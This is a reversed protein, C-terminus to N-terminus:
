CSERKDITYRKARLAVQDFPQGAVLIILAKTQEFLSRGFIKCMGTSIVVSNERENSSANACELPM